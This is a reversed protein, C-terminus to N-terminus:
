NLLGLEDEVENLRSLFELELKSRERYPLRKLGEGLRALFGDIPSPKETTKNLYNLLLQEYNMSPGTIYVLFILNM